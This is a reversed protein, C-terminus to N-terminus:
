GGPPVLIMRNREVRWSEMQSLFNMGLVNTDGFAEAVVVPFDNAVINGVVLSDITARHAEVMGNATTLIVPFGGDTVTLGADDATGRNMATTTAGSDILFRVPTGNVDATVWFHGDNSQAIELTDGRVQQGGGAMQGAVRNWVARLEEQYSFGLIFVAFIVVWGLIGRLVDRFSTRRAFLVSVVLVLMGVAFVLNLTQDESM